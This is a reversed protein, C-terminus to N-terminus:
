ADLSIYRFMGDVPERGRVNPGGVVPLLMENVLGFAHFFAVGERGAHIGLREQLSFFRWNRAPMGSTVVTSIGM